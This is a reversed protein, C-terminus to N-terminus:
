STTTDMEKFEIEISKRLIGDNEDFPLTRVARVRYDYYGTMNSDTYFHNRMEFLVDRAIADRARTGSVTTSNVTLLQADGPKDWVWIDIQCVYTNETATNQGIAVADGTETIGLVSIRPYSSKSIDKRPWDKWVMKNVDNRTTNYDATIINRLFLQVQYEPVSAVAM